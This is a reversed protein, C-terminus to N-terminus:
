KSKSKSLGFMKILTRVDGDDPQRGFLDKVIFIANDISGAEELNKAIAIAFWGCLSSDDYQFKGDYWHIYYNHLQELM